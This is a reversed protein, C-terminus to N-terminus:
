AFLFCLRENGNKKEKRILITNNTKYNQLFTNENLIFKAM